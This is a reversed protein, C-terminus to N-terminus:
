PKGEGGGIAKAGTRGGFPMKRPLPCPPPCIGELASGLCYTGLIVSLPFSDFVTM